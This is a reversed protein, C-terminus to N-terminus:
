VEVKTLRLAMPWKSNAAKQTDISSNQYRAQWIENAYEGIIDLNISDAHALQLRINSPLQRLFSEEFFMCSTHGGVLFRMEALIDSLKRDSCEILDLLKAARRRRNLGVVKILRDKLKQYKDNAPTNQPIDLLQSVTTQDLAAVVITSPRTTLFRESLSSLKPRFLSLM